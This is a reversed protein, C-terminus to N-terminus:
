PRQRGARSQILRNFLSRFIIYPILALLFAVILAGIPNFRHFTIIQFILDLILAIIFVKSISKWGSKLLFQRHERDTFLSWGYPPYGKQADRRGDGFALVAAVLPQLIFRLHFPGDIRDIVDLTLDTMIQALFIKM